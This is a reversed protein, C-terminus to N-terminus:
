LRRTRVINRLLLQGSEKLPKRPSIQGEIPRLLDITMHPERTIDMGVLHM